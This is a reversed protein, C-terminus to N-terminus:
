CALDGRKEFAFSVRELRALLLPARFGSCSFGILGLKSLSVRLSRMNFLWPLMQTFTKQM